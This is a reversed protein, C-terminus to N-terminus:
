RSRMVKVDQQIIKLQDKIDKFNTTQTMNIHKVETEVKILREAVKSHGTDSSTHSKAESKVEEISQKNDEVTLTQVALANSVIIIQSVIWALLAVLSVIIGWNERVKTWFTTTESM